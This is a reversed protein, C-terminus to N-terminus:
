KKDAILYGRAASARVWTDTAANWQAVEAANEGIGRQDGGGFDYVGNIGVWGHLHLIYDRIQEATAHTGLHRLADVVIMTPDWALNHAFDPRSGIAKFAQFYKRQVERIPGPPIAGPTLALVTSFFLQKPLFAKYTALQTYIANSTPIQVPVDLGSEAIARLATAVPTGTAYVLIAQPASAKVRSIQASVSLDAPAFHARAVIQVRKNEPLQLVANTQNEYDQGSADTSAVIAIRKWGRARFYRIGVKTSDYSAVSASFVYSGAPPHILPSLCFDVPGSKVVLPVIANCVTSPGGDIFVADKGVFKNALQLGVQGTTQSDLPVIKLPQGQIGGTANVLREIARFTELYSKALFAGGGTSPVIAPLEYPTGSAPVALAAEAAALMLALVATVLRTLM